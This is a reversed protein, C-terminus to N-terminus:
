SVTYIKYIASWNINNNAAGTVQILANGSSVNVACSWGAQDEASFISSEGVETATGAVNKYCAAIIYAAADEATGASGGTRRATVYAEIMTTTSAAIAITAITTTTANTTSVTASYMPGAIWTVTSGLLVYANGNSTNIYLPTSPTPTTIGQFAAALPVGSAGRVDAM